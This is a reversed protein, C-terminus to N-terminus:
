FRRWGLNCDANTTRSPSSAKQSLGDGSGWRGRRWRLLPGNEGLCEGEGGRERWWEPDNGKEGLFVKYHGRKIKKEREREEVAVEM